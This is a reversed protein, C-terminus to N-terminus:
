PNVIIVGPMTPGHVTCHYDYTTTVTVAPAVWTGSTAGAQFVPVNAGPSPSTSPTHSDWTIGHPATSQNSWSVSDGSTVTVPSQAVNNFSYGMPAAANNIVPISVNSNGSVPTSGGGGGGGSGGCGYVAFVLVLALTAIFIKSIHKTM